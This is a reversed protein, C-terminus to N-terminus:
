MHKEHNMITLLALVRQLLNQQKRLYDDSGIIIIDNEEPKLKEILLSHIYLEKKVSEYNSDPMVFKGDKFLMTTAGLAVM